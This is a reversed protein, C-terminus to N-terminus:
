HLFANKLKKKRSSAKPKVLFDTFKAKALPRGIKTESIFVSKKANLTATALECIECFCRNDENETSKEILAKKVSNVLASFDVYVPFEEPSNHDQFKM